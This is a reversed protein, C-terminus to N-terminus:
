EANERLLFILSIVFYWFSSSGALWVRFFILPFFERCCHNIIVPFSPSISAFTCAFNVRFLSNQVVSQEVLFAETRCSCIDHAGGVCHQEITWFTTSSTFRSGFPGTVDCRGCIVLTRLLSRALLSGFTFLVWLEFRFLLLHSFEEFFVFLHCFCTLSDSPPSYPSCVSTFIELIRRISAAVCRLSLVQRSTFPAVVTLPLSNQRILLIEYMCVLYM